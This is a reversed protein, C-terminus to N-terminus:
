SEAVNTANAGTDIPIPLCHMVARVLDSPEIRDAAARAEAAMRTKSSSSSAGDGTVFVEVHIDMAGTSVGGGLSLPSNSYILM